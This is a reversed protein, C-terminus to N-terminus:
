SLYSAKLGEVISQYNKFAEDPKGAQILNVSRAVLRDYLDGYILNRNKSGDIKKTILPATTYYDAVIRHGEPLGKVYTDRFTRLTKLELCDDPLGRAVVCATSIFCGSKGGGSSSSGSSDPENERYKDGAEKDAEKRSWGSGSYTEGKNDKIETSYIHNITPLPFPLDSEVKRSINEIERKAM